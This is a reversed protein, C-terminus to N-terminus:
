DKRKAVKIVKCFETGSFFLYYLSIFFSRAESICDATNWFHGMKNSRTMVTQAHVHVNTVHVKNFILWDILLEAHWWGIIILNPTRLGSFVYQLHTYNDAGVVYNPLASIAIVRNHHTHPTPHVHYRSLVFVGSRFYKFSPVITSWPFRGFGILKPYFCDLDTACPWWKSSIADGEHKHFM